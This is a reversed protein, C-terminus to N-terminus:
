LSEYSLALKLHPQPELFNKKWRPYRKVLRANMGPESYDESNLQERVAIDLSEDYNIDASRKRRNLTKIKGPPLEGENIDENENWSTEVAEFAIHDEGAQVKVEEMEGESLSPYAVQGPINLKVAENDGGINLHVRRPQPSAKGPAPEAKKTEEAPPKVYAVHKKMGEMIKFQEEPSITQYKVEASLPVPPPPTDDSGKELEEVQALEASSPFDSQIPAQEEKEKGNEGFTIIPGPELDHPLAPVLNIDDAKQIRIGTGNRYASLLGTFPLLETFFVLAWMVMGLAILMKGQGSMSNLNRSFFRGPGRHGTNMMRLRLYDQLAFTEQQRQPYTFRMEPSQIPSVVTVAPSPPPQRPPEDEVEQQPLVILNLNLALHKSRRSNLPLDHPSM